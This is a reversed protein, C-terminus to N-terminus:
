NLSGSEASRNDAVCLTVAWCPTPGGHAWWSCASKTRALRESGSLAFVFVVANADVCCEMKGQSEAIGYQPQLKSCTLRLIMFFKKRWCQAASIRASESGEPSSSDGEFFKLYGFMVIVANGISDQFLISLRILM